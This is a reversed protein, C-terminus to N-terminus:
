VQKLQNYQILPAMGVLSPQLKAYSGAGETTSPTILCQLGITWIKPHKTAM